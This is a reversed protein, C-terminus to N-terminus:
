RIQESHPMAKIDPNLDAGTLNRYGSDHLAILTESAYCGLDLIPEDAGVNRTLFELTHLVDWSKIEDGVVITKDRAFRNVLRPWLSELQSVGLRKLAVRSKRIQSRKQLVEMSM